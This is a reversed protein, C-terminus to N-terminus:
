RDSNLYKVYIQLIGLSLLHVRQRPIHYPELQDQVMRRFLIIYEMRKILLIPFLTMGLEM